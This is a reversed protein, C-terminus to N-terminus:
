CTPGCEMHLQSHNKNCLVLHVPPPDANGMMLAEPRAPTANPHKSRLIDLVSKAEQDGLDISDEVLLVGGGSHQALLQIAAKVKGHFM